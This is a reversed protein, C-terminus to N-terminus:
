AMPSPLQEALLLLHSLIHPLRILTCSPHAWVPHPQCLPSAMQAHPASPHPHRLPPATLSPASALLVQPCVSALSWVQPNGALSPLTPPRQPSATCALRLRPPAGQLCDRPLYSLLGRPRVGAKSLTGKSDFGSEMVVLQTFKPM